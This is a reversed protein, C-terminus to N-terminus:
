QFGYPFSVARGFPLNSLCTLYTHPLLGAPLDCSADGSCGSAM